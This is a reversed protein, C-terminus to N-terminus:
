AEISDYRGLPAAAQKRSTSVVDQSSMTKFPVRFRIYALLEITEAEKKADLVKTNIAKSTKKSPCPVMPSPSGNSFDHDRRPCIPIPFTVDHGTEVSADSAAAPATPKRIHQGEIVLTPDPADHKRSAALAKVKKGKPLGFWGMKVVHSHDCFYHNTVPPRLPNPVFLSPFLEKPFEEYSFILLFTNIPKVTSNHAKRYGATYKSRFQLEVKHLQFPQLLTPKSLQYFYTM